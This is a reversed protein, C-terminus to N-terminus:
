MRTFQFPGEFGDGSNDVYVDVKTSTLNDFKALVTLPLPPVDPGSGANMTFTIITQLPLTEPSFTGSLSNVENFTESLTGNSNLTITVNTTTYGDVPLSAIFWTDFISLSAQKPTLQIDVLVRQNTPGVTVPPDSEETDYGDKVFELTWTGEALEIEYDGLSNTLESYQYGKVFVEVSELPEGTNADTVKGHAKYVRELYYDIPKCTVLTMVSAVLALSLLLKAKRIMKM